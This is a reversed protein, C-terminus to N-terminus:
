GGGGAMWNLDSPSMVPKVPAVAAAPKADRGSLLGSDPHADRGVQQNRTAFVDAHGASSMATIRAGGHTPAPQALAAAVFPLGLVAALVGSYQKKM